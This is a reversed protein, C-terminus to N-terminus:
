NLMIVLKDTLRSIKAILPEGATGERVARIHVLVQKAAGHLSLSAKVDTVSPYM